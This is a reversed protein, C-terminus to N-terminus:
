TIAAGQARCSLWSSTCTNKKNRSSDGHELDLYKYTPGYCYCYCMKRTHNFHKVVVKTGVLFSGPQWSEDEETKKFQVNHPTNNLSVKLYQYIFWYVCTFFLSMFIFTSKHNDTIQKSIHLQCVALCYHRRETCERNGAQQAWPPPDLDLHARMGRLWKQLWIFCTTSAESDSQVLIGFVATVSSNDGTPLQHSAPPGEACLSSPHVPKWRGQCGNAWAWRSNRCAKREALLVLLWTIIHFYPHPTCHIYNCNLWSCDFIWTLM